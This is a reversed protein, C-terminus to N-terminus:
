LGQLAQDARDHERTAREAAERAEVLADEAKRLLEAADDRRAQATQVEREAREAARRADAEARRAAKVAQARERESREREARERKTEEREARKAKAAKPEGRAKTRAGAAAAPQGALGGQGLGVHRLERTLCGAEVEARADEDLAAAHLSQSVRELTTPTLEHGGSSLLGRALDVLAEVAERENTVGDRLASADGSGALLDSQASQLADGAAFLAQLEGPRTRVLQNVAWAAVSPKRLSAVEDAPEREGDKRLAKAL